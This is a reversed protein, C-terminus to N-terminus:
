TLIEMARPLTLSSGWHQQSGGTAYRPRPNLLFFGKTSNVGGEEEELISQLWKSSAAPKTKHTLNHEFDSQCLTEPFFFFVESFSVASIM